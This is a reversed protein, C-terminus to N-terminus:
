LAEATERLSKLTISGSVEREEIEKVSQQSIQLREGLQRLSM